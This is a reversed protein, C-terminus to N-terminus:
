APTSSRGSPTLRRMPKPSRPTMDTSNEALSYLSVERHARRRRGDGVHLSEGASWARRRLGESGTTRSRASRRQWPSRGTPLRPCRFLMSMSSPRWEKFSRHLMEVRLGSAFDVLRHDELCRGGGVLSRPDPRRASITQRRGDREAVPMAPLELRRVGSPARGHGVSACRPRNCRCARDRQLCPLRGVPM